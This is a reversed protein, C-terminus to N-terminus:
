SRKSHSAGQRIYEEGLQSSQRLDIIYIIYDYINCMYKYGINEHGNSIGTNLKDTQIQPQIQNLHVTHKQGTMFRVRCKAFLAPNFALKKVDNSSNLTHWQLEIATRPTIQDSIAIIVKM